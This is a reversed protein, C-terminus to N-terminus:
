FPSACSNTPVPILYNLVRVQCDIPDSCTVYKQVIGNVEGGEVLTRPWELSESSISSILWSPGLRQVNAGCYAINWGLKALCGTLGLTVASAARSECNTNMFDMRTDTCVGYSGLPPDWKQEGPEDVFYAQTTVTDPTPIWRPRAELVAIRTEFSDFDSTVPVGVSLEQASLEIALTEETLSENVVHFTYFKPNPTCVYSM